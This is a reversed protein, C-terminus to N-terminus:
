SLLNLEMRQLMKEAVTQKALKKTKGVAREVSSNIQCQLTFEPDHSPGTVEIVSYMPLAIKKRICFENLFSIYNKHVPQDTLTTISSVNLIRKLVSKAAEEKAIKKNNGSGNGINNGVKVSCNFKQPPNEFFQYIPQELHSTKKSCLEQLTSVLPKYLCKTTNDM